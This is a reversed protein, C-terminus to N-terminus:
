LEKVRKLTFIDSKSFEKIKAKDWTKWNDWVASLYKGTLGDSDSSALFVCLEATKEPPIGGSEKQELLKKYKEKGTKEEGARLAVDLFHTNVPGPAIVNIDIKYNKVEEALTETLRTVAAKSSNYASFNPLPGDGGGSFNIIKGGKEKMAKIVNQYVNFAGFLNIEYTKKWEDLDVEHSPGIPGYIGAANVLIDIGGFIKVAEEVLKKVEAPNSVDAVLIEIFPVSKRQDLSARQNVSIIKKLEAKTKKLEDLSRSALMVKAGERLFYEAIVKGIGRSGGTILAKKNELKM